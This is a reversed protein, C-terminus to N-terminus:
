AILYVVRNIPVHNPWSARLGEYHLSAEEEEQLQRSSQAYLPAIRFMDMSVDARKWHSSHSGVTSLKDERLLMNHLMCAVKFCNDIKKPSNFAIRTRLLRFRKFLRGFLNEVDKRVSEM